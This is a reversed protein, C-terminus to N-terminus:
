YDDYDDMMRQSLSRSRSRKIEESQQRIVNSQKRIQRTKSRNSRVLIVLIFFMFIIIIQEWSLSKTKEKVFDVSSTFLDGVSSTASLTLDVPNTPNAPKSM